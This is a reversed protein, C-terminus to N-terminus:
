GPEATGYAERAYEQLMREATFHSGNLAIAARAVRAWEQPRDHFLPTIEQELKRYLSDAEAAPEVEDEWGGGISWGTVGEVRGEIWWGDPVSLSPVGNLAAKMGSTGSAELPKRPTNLWVDVGACVIGALDMDYEDLWVVRVDPAIAAAGEHVRRIMAKGDVDEPHAKGAYVVQLPGRERVIRRLREPDSFLLDARKYATARRAFGLTLAGPDLGEGTRRAVEASLAARAAARAARIEALPVLAIRRLASNSRRWGPVHRDFLEAFAPSTWRGAHVGNTIARIEHGPFMRGSVAAHRGSVGNTWRSSALALRTMNLRGDELPACRELLATRREGLAEVLLPRPFRDHGASVPTHTTFVCRARVRDLDAGTPAGEGAARELLALALFASHGENMHWTTVEHGLAELVAVGGLGLVVEQRLRDRADGRYLGRTIGRDEDANEPLDTDLLYVPVRGAEGALDYRWAAVEVSRDGLPVAVRVGASRLRDEPSWAAPEELQVGSEVRQRFYGERHVLTVGVMSLGLDAAAALTDGALVGLGGSYTPLSSELAIEMSAYAIKRNVFPRL